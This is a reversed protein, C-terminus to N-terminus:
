DKTDGEEPANVAELYSKLFAEADVDNTTRALFLWGASWFLVGRQDPPGFSYTLRSSKRDNLRLNIPAISRHTTDAEDIADRVRGFLAEKELETARYVFVEFTGQESAYTAHYGAIEIGFEPVAAQDDHATLELGAVAVPFLEDPGVDEAPPRWSKTLAVWQKQKVVERKTRDIVRPVALLLWVVALLLIVTCGLAVFKIAPRTGAM